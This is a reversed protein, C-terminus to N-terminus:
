NRLFYLIRENYSCNEKYIEEVWLIIKNEGIFGVGDRWYYVFFFVVDEEFIFIVVDRMLWKFFIVWDGLCLFWIGGNREGWIKMFSFIFDGRWYRLFVM